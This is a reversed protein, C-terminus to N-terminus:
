PLPPRPLKPVPLHDIELVELIRRNLDDIKIIKDELRHFSVGPPPPPLLGIVERPPAQLHIYISADLREGQRLKKRWGPPLDKGREVKKLLGPPLDGRRDSKHKNKAQAPVALLLLCCLLYITKKMVKVM